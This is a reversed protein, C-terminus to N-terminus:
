GGRFFVGNGDQSIARGVEFYGAVLDVKEYPVDASTAAPTKMFTSLIQNHGITSCQFNYLNILLNMIIRRDGLEELFMPDKIRPFQGQIMRMGWESM